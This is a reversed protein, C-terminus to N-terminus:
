NFSKYQGPTIGEYRKFARILAKSDSYGTKIATEAVTKNQQLLSKGHALRVSHIYDLIGIGNYKKYTRSIYSVNLNLISAIKEVNLSIDSYNKVIYENILKVWAPENNKKNQIYKIIENFLMDTEKRLDDVTEVRMLRKSPELKNFFVTNKEDVSSNLATLVNNIIAFM